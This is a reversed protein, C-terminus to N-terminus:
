QIPMMRFGSTRRGDDPIRKNDFIKLIAQSILALNTDVYYMPFPFTIKYVQGPFIVLFAAVGM